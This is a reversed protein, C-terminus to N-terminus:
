NQLKSEDSALQISGQEMNSLIASKKSGDLFYPQGYNEIYTPYYQVDILKNDYFTYKGIVGERTEESWYQDFILNGHAYTILKGKYLEIPEIWHPHNGIVLDAGDDIAEHGLMEQRSSPMFTYEIGWHFQVVVIDAENKAQAIDTKMKTEDVNNIGPQPITIDDYGLFAFKLGRVDKIVPKDVGVADIGVKSLAAVTQEVGVSGHNGAHNNALNALDIGASQLGRTNKQDGCFVMGTTTTPCDDPLSTELNIFTLDANKLFDAVQLFPYTFNGNTVSQNNVSRATMVDGTAILTRIHDKPLTDVSRHDNSFITNISLPQIFLPSPTPTKQQNQEETVVVAEKVNPFTIIGYFSLLIAFVLIIILLIVLPNKMLRMM